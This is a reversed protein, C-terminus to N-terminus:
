PALEETGSEDPPQRGPVDDSTRTASLLYRAAAPLPRVVAGERRVLGFGVLVAVADSVLAAAGDEGQYSKAWRPFRALLDGGHRNLQEITAPSGAMRDLLTLAAVKANSSDDPFRTDTALAEPDVLMVGEAREELGFGGQEAARRLLQRGTPSALYGREDETLEDFHVV